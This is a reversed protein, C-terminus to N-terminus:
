DLLKDCILRLKVVGLQLVQKRIQSGISLLV